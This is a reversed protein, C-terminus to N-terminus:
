RDIIVIPDIHLNGVTVCYKFTKALQDKRALTGRFARVPGVIGNPPPPESFPWSPLAAVDVHVRPGKTTPEAALQFFQLTFDKIGPGARWLITEGSAGTVNGGNVGVVLTNHQISVDIEVNAAIQEATSM